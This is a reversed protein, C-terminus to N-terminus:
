LLKFISGCSSRKANNATSTLFRGCSLDCYYDLKLDKLLHFKKEDAYLTFSETRSASSKNCIGPRLKIHIWGESFNKDEVLDISMKGPFGGFSDQRSLESVASRIISLNVIETM